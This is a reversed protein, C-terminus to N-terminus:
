YIRGGAYYAGLGGALAPLYTPVTYVTNLGTFRLKEAHSAFLTEASKFVENVDKSDGVGHLREVEDVILVIKKDPAARERRITQVAEAVFDRAQKVLKEVLGRTKRQLEAKFSPNHHLSAKLEVAGAPIAIEDFRVDSELFSWVREFFGQSGPAKGIRAEVKESFAGLIAILFDTIEIRQTLTLYESLDAYFVECGFDHLIKALRLLETTKGTGRNGTFLYAGASASFDIHAALEQVPDRQGTGHIHEVYVSSDLSNEVLDRVGFNIPRDLDLANYFTKARDRISSANTM